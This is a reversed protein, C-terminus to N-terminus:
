NLIMNSNVGEVENMKFPKDAGIVLNPVWHKVGDSPTKWPYSRTPTHATSVKISYIHPTYILSIHTSSCHTQLHSPLLFFFSITRHSHYVPFIIISPTPLTTTHICIGYYSLNKPMFIKDMQGHIFILFLINPLVFYTYRFIAQWNHPNEHERWVMRKSIIEYQTSKATSKDPLVQIILRYLNKCTVHVFIEHCNFVCFNQRSIKWVVYLPCCYCKNFLM